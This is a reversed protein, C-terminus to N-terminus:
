GPRNRSIRSDAPRVGSSGSPRFGEGDGIQLAIQRRAIGHERAALAQRAIEQRQGRPEPHDGADPDAVVGHVDGAAVARPMATVMVGPVFPLTASCVNARRSANVRLRTFLWRIM